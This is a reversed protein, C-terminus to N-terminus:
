VSVDIVGGHEDSTDIGLEALVEAVAAPVGAAVARSLETGHDTTGVVVGVICLSGPIRELVAALGLAEALGASHGSVGSHWRAVTTPDFADDGRLVLVRGREVGAVRVADVVVVHDRGSWLDILHTPEGDLEALDARAVVAPLEGLADLVVGAVGDDTRFRNGVAVVLPRHPSGPVMDSM